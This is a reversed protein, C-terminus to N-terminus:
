EVDTRCGKACWRGSEGAVNPELRYANILDGFTKTSAPPADRLEIPDIDRAILARQAAARERAESLSVAPYQGLSM